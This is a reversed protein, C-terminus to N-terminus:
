KQRGAAAKMDAAFKAVPLRLLVRSKGDALRIERLHVVKGDSFAARRKGGLDGPVAWIERFIRM